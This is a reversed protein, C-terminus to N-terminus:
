YLLVKQSEVKRFRKADEMNKKRRRFDEASVLGITEVKFNDYEGDNAKSFQSKLETISTTASQKIKRKEADFKNIQKIRESLGQQERDAASM